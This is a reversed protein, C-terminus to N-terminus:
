VNIWKNVSKYMNVSFYTIHPAINFQLLQWFTYQFTRPNWLDSSWKYTYIIFEIFIMYVLHEYVVQPSFCIM